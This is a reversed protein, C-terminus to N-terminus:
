AAESITVPDDVDYLVVPRLRGFEDRFELTALGAFVRVGHYVGPAIRLQGAPTLLRDLAALTAHTLYDNV